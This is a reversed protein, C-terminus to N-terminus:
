PDDVRHRHPDDRCGTSFWSRRRSCTSPRGMGDTHAWLSILDDRPDARREEILRLTVEAWERMVPVLGPHSVHPPGDPSTQGALLMVQESWFRVREWMEPPYGLLEGIMMAPLRSAIAEIAECEGLPVM